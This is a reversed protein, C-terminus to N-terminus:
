STLFGLQCSASWNATYLRLRPTSGTLVQLMELQHDYCSKFEPDGSKLDPAGLWEAVTGGFTGKVTEGAHTLKRSCYMHMYTFSLTENITPSSPVQLCSFAAPVEEAPILFVM